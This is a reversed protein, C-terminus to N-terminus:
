CPFARNHVKRHCPAVSLCSNRGRAPAGDAPLNGSVGSARSNVVAREEPGGGGGGRKKLLHVISSVHV